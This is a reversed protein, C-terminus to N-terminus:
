NQNMSSHHARVVTTANYFHKGAPSRCALCHQRPLFCDKRGMLAVLSFDGFFSLDELQNGGGGCKGQKPDLSILVGRKEMSKWTLCSFSFNCLLRGHLRICSLLPQHCFGEFCPHMYIMYYKMIDYLTRKRKNELTDVRAEQWSRFSSCAGEVVATSSCASLNKTQLGLPQDFRNCGLYCLFPTRCSAFKM